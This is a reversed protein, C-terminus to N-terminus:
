SHRNRRYATKGTLKPVPIGDKDKRLVQKISIVSDHSCPPWLKGTVEQEHLGVPLPRAVHSVRLCRATHFYFFVIKTLILNPLHDSPVHPAPLSEYKLVLSDDPINYHLVDQSFSVRDLFIYDLLGNFCAVWTTYKPFGTACFLSLNSIFCPALRPDPLININNRLYSTLILEVAASDPKSNWDGMLILSPPRNRISEGEIQNRLFHIYNLIVSTQVLRIDDAGPAFYLHTNVALIENDNEKDMLLSVQLVSKQKLTNKYLDPYNILANRLVDCSPHVALCSSIEMDYGYMFIYKEQKYFIASGETGNTNKVFLVGDYNKKKLNPYLYSDFLNQQCEQLGFIDANYYVLEHLLLRKRYDINLCFPSVNPYMVRTALDTTTYRDALINYSLVRIGTDATSRIFRYEYLFPGMYSLVPDKSTTEFFNEDLFTNESHCPFCKLKLHKGVDAKTPTYSKSTSLLNEVNKDDIRFWKFLCKEPDTGKIDILFDVELKEMPYRNIVLSKLTVPDRYIQYVEEGLILKLANRFGHLNTTSEDIRSGSGDMLSISSNEENQIILKRKLLIRWLTSSLTQNKNRVLKQKKGGLNFLLVIEKEENELNRAIIFKTAMESM